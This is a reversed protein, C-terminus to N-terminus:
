VMIHVIGSGSSKPWVRGSGSGFDFLGVRWLRNVVWLMMTILIEIFIFNLGFGPNLRLAWQCSLKKAVLRKQRSENGFHVKVTLTVHGDFYWWWWWRPHLLYPPPNVAIYVAHSGLYSGNWACGFRHHPHDLHPFEVEIAYWPPWRAGLFGKQYKQQFCFKPPTDREKSM